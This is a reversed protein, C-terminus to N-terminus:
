LIINGPPNFLYILKGQTDPVRSRNCILDDDLKSVNKHLNDFITLFVLEYSFVTEAGKDFM